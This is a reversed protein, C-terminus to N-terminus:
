ADYGSGAPDLHRDLLAEVHEPRVRILRGLRIAPLLGRGIWRRVTRESVGLERAIDAITQLPRNHPEPQAHRVPARCAPPEPDFLNAM